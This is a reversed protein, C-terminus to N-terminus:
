KETVIVVCGLKSKKNQLAKNEEMSNISLMKKKSPNPNIGMAIRMRTSQALKIVLQHLFELDAFLEFQILQVKNLEKALKLINKDVKSAKPDPSKSVLTTLLENLKSTYSEWEDMYKLALKQDIFEGGEPKPPKPASKSKNKSIKNLGSSLSARYQDKWHNKM